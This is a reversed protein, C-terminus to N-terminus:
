PFYVIENARYEFGVEVPEIVGLSLGLEQAVRLSAGFTWFRGLGRCFRSAVTVTLM